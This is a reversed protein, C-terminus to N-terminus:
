PWIWKKANPHKQLSSSGTELDSLRVALQYANIVFRVWTAKRKAVTLADPNKKIQLSVLRGAGPSSSLAGGQSATVAAREFIPREYFLSPSLPSVESWQSMWDLIRQAEEADNPRTGPPWLSVFIRAGPGVVRATWATWTMLDEPYWPPDVIASGFQGGKLEEAGPEIPWHHTVGQLPQRDVLVVKRGVAELQRAVSPAGVALVHDQIPLLECVFAVSEGTFRWDYDLPHPEPLLCL